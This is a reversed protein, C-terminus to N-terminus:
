QRGRCGARGKGAPHQSRDFIRGEHRTLSLLIAEFSVESTQSVESTKVQCEGRQEPVLRGLLMRRIM